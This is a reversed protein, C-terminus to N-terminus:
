RDIEVINQISHLNFLKLQFFTLEASPFMKKLRHTKFHTHLKICLFFHDIEIQRSCTCFVTTATYFTIFTFNNALTLLPPPLIKKKCFDM